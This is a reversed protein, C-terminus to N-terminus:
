KPEEESGRGEKSERRLREATAEQKETLQALEDAAQKVTGDARRELEQLKRRAEDAQQEADSLKDAPQAADDERKM